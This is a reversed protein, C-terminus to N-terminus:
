KAVLVNFNYFGACDNNMYSLTVPGDGAVAEAVRVRVHLFPLRRSSATGLALLSLNM